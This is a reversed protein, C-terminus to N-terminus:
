GCREMCARVRGCRVVVVLVLSDRHRKRERPLIKSLWCPTTTKKRSVKPGLLRRM